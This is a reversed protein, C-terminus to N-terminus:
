AIMRLLTCSRIMHRKRYMRMRDAWRLLIRQIANAAIKPSPDDYDPKHKRMRLMEVRLMTMMMVPIVHM